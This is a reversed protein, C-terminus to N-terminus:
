KQEPIGKRQVNVWGGRAKLSLEVRNRELHRELNGLSYDIKKRQFEMYDKMISNCKYRDGGM